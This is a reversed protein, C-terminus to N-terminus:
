LIIVLHDYQTNSDERIDYYIPKALDSLSTILSINLPKIHFRNDKIFKDYGRKAIVKKPRTGRGMIHSEDCYKLKDWPKDQIWEVFDIYYEINEPKFKYIQVRCPIKWSWGWAKLIRSM